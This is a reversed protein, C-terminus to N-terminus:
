HVTKTYAMFIKVGGARLATASNYNAESLKTPPKETDFTPSGSM